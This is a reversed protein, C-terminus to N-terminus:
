SCSRWVPKLFQEGTRHLLQPFTLMFCGEVRGLATQLANSNKKEKALQLNQSRLQRQWVTKHTIEELEMPKCGKRM